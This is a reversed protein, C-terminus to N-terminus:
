GWLYGPDTLLRGGGGGAGPLGQDVKPTEPNAQAPFTGYISAYSVHGKGDPTTDDPSMRPTAPTRADETKHGFGTGNPACPTDERETSPCRPRRRKQGDHTAFTGTYTEPPHVSDIGKPLCRPASGEGPTAPVRREANSNSNQVAAARNAKGGAARSGDPGWSGRWSLNSRPATLPSPSPSRRNLRPPPTQSRHQTKNQKKVCVQFLKM